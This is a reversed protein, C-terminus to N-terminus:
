LERPTSFTGRQPLKGECRLRELGMLEPGGVSSVGSQGHKQISPLGLGPVTDEPDM